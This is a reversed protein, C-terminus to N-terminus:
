TTGQIRRSKQAAGGDGQVVFGFETELAAPCLREHGGGPRIRRGAPQGGRGKTILTGQRRLNSIM